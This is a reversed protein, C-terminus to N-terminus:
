GVARSLVRLHRRDATSSVTSGEFECTPARVGLTVTNTSLAKLLYNLNFSAM